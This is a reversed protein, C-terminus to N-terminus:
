SAFIAAYSPTIHFAIIDARTPLHRLIAHFLPSSITDIAFIAFLRFFAHRRFGSFSFSLQFHFPPTLLPLPTIADFYRFPPLIPTADFAFHRRLPPTADLMHCCYHCPMAAIHCYCARIVYYDSAYPMMIAM